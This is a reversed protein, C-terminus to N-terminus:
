FPCLPYSPSPFEEMTEKLQTMIMMSSTKILFSIFNEELRGNSGRWKMGAELRADVRQEDNGSMVGEIDDL